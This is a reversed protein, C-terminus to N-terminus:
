SAGTSRKIGFDDTHYVCVGESVPNWDRIRHRELQHLLPRNCFLMIPKTSEAGLM